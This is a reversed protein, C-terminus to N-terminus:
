RDAVVDAPFKVAAGPKIGLKRFTGQKVEVVYKADGTSPLPTEDYPKGAQVNLLKKDASVYGIDLPTVTNQMWFSLPQAETFVFLMAENAAIAEPKLFMMGEQRKGPTDMVWAKFKHSGVELDDVRLESLQYM